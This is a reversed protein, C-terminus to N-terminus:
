GLAVLEQDTMALLRGDVVDLFDVGSPLTASWRERGDSPDFTTMVAGREPDFTPVLLTRGDTLVQQAHDGLPMDVSWLLHGSHADVATMKQHAIAILRGDLLLSRGGPAWRSAWLQKGTASDVAVLGNEDVPRVFIVDPASGDDVMPVVLPGSISYGDRRDGTSVTGYHAESSWVGGSQGVAFRGDPLVTVEPGWGGIAARDGGLLHWEGLVTGDPGLALTVPGGLLIVGHQISTFLWPPSGGSEPLPDTSRFTWRPRGSVPDERTVLAHNNRLIEAVVLDRGLAAMTVSTSAMTRQAVRKGTKGDLVVLRASGVPSYNGDQADLRSAGALLCAVDAVRDDGPMGLAVCRVDGTGAVEPLPAQWRREGTTGDLSVVAASRQDDYGFLVVDRGISDVQGWGRLPEHWLERLSADIPALVESITALRAARDDARIGSIAGGVVLVLPLGAAVPWWRRLHRLHRLHRLGRLARERIPTDVRPSEVTSTDRDPDGPEGRARLVDDPGPEVVEVLVVERM